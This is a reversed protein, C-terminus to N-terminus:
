KELNIATGLAIEMMQTFSSQREKATTSEGTVLSDSVTFMALANKGSRAANMYLAAAEMEVCLVGMKRWGENSASNDNYFVDSSLVNGVHYRAGAQEAQAIAERLLDYSAIPAFTGGLGYQNAYNSDTCAGMGFVIDRIKVNEQMAGTSGIRIINEVDFLYFLEYSYIGITPMGMGSAMVSLKVGKYNGTYGQIGRINNILVANELFNEAIFKSRLPDGPMLVTKGFADKEANIHPTTVLSM